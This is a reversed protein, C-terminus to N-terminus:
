VLDNDTLWAAMDDHVLQANRELGMYHGSDPVLLTDVSPAGAYLATQTEIGQIRADASGYVVQVPVDVEDLRQLDQYIGLTITSMDGCPHANQLPTVAELVAPEADAFNGTLFEETGNDYYTYGLPIDAPAGTADGAGVGPEADPAFQLLCRGTAAIFREDAEATFGLDGWGHVSVGDVNGFSIAAINAILGGNSQGALVVQDFTPQESGSTYEGSRLQEVIQNTVDAQAGICTETGQPLGSDDYGLRDFSVSVHGREAMETVHNYGELPLNWYWEGGAIGHQYLTVARDPDDLADAPATLTGAVEYTGGDAACEVVSRNVNEVTFSVPIQVVEPTTPQAAATAPVALALTCAAVAVAATRVFSM